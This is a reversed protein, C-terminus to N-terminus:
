QEAAGRTSGEKGVRREESRRKTSTPTPCPGGSSKGGRGGGLEPHHRLPRLGPPRAVPALLRGPLALRGRCRPPCGATPRPPPVLVQAVGHRVPGRPFVLWLGCRAA